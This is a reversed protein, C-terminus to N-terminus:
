SFLKNMNLVEIKKEDPVKQFLEKLLANDRFRISYDQQLKTRGIRGLAQICKEQTMNELDKGLYGHCFQYNTGYIYDSSAIILYLQQNEAMQKMIETYVRSKHNDFVGIGMLLLLKYEDEIDQVLMIKEVDDETINSTFPFNMLSMTRIGHKMYGFRKLHEQSNPVFMENLAVQKIMSQLQKIKEMLQKMEPSLRNDDGMKKEKGEDKRIGDEFTKELTGIKENVTKNYELNTKIDDM